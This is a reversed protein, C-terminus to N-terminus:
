SLCPRWIASPSIGAIWGAETNSIGWVAIFTPTLAAFAFNPLLTGVEGISMAFVLPRGRLAIM